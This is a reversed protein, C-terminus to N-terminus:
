IRYNSDSPGAQQCSMSGGLNIFSPPIVASTKRKSLIMEGMIQTKSVGMGLCAGAQLAPTRKTASRM